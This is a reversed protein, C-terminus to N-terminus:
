KVENLSKLFDEVDKESIMKCPKKGIEKVIKFPLGKNIWYRVGNSTVGYMKAIESVKKM